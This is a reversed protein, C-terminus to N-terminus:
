SNRPTRGLVRSTLGRVRASLGADDAGSRLWEKKAGAELARAQLLPTKSTLQRLTVIGQEAVSGTGEYKNVAVVIAGIAGAEAVLQKRRFANADDGTTINRIAVFAMEQVGPYDLNATMAAVIAELTCSAANDQRVAPQDPQVEGSCLNIIAACAQQQVAPVNCHAEMADTLHAVAGLSDCLLCGDEEHCLVRVRKCAAAMLAPDAAHEVVSFLAMVEAAPMEACRAILTESYPVM